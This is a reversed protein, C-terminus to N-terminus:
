LAMRKIGNKILNVNFNILLGLRCGSLKLYSLLQAEHVPLLTEVAKLEVVLSKEVVPDLRLGADLKIGDYTVPLVFQRDFALGRKKLEHVLCAEYVSELLAPGLASHICYAGDVVERAVRDLSKPITERPTKTGQHHM